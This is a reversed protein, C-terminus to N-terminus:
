QTLKSTEPIYNEVINSDKLSKNRRNRFAFVFIITAIIIFLLSPLYIIGKDKEIKMGFIYNEKPSIEPIYLSYNEVTHITYNGDFPIKSTDNKLIGCYVHFKNNGICVFDYLYCDAVKEYMPGVKGRLVNGKEIKVSCNLKIYSNEFDFGLVNYYLDEMKKTDLYKFEGIPVDDHINDYLKYINSSYYINYVENDKLQVEPGLRCDVLNDFQTCKLLIPEEYENRILFPDLQNTTIFNVGKLQLDNALELSDVTTVKIKNGTSKAYILIENDISGGSSLGSFNYIIRKTGAYKEEEKKLKEINNINSISIAIDNKLNKIKLVTNPNSEDNFIVSNFM